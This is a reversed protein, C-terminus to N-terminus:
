MRGIPNIILPICALQLKEHLNRAVIELEDRDLEEILLLVSQVLRNDIMMTKKPIGPGSLRPPPGLPFYNQNTPKATSPNKINERNNGGSNLINKSKSGSSSTTHQEKRSHPTSPNKEENEFYKLKDYHNYNEGEIFDDNRMKEIVNENLNNRSLWNSGIRWPRLENIGDGIIDIWTLAIWKEGSKLPPSGYFSWPDLEALWGTNQSVRHNYWM